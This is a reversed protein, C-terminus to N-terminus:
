PKVESQPSAADGAPVDHAAKYRRTECFLALLLIAALVLDVLKDLIHGFWNDFALPFWWGSTLIAASFIVVVFRTIWAMHYRRDLLMRGVAVLERSMDFVLWSSHAVQRLTSPQAAAGVLNKVAPPLPRASIAEVVSEVSVRPVQAAVREAVQEAVRDEMQRTDGLGAVRQELARVRGELEALSRELPSPDADM